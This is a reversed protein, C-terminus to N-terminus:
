ACTAFQRAASFGFQSRQRLQPRAMGANTSARRSLPRGAPLFDLAFVTLVLLAVPGRGRTELVVDSGAM